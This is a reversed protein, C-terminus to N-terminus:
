RPRRAITEIVAGELVKILAEVSPAQVDFFIAEHGQEQVRFTITGYPERKGDGILIDIEAPWKSGDFRHNLCRIM